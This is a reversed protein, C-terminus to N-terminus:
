YGEIGQTHIPERVYESKHRIVGSPLCKSIGFYYSHEDTMLALRDFDINAALTDHVKRQSLKGMHMTRVRGGREVMGFVPEKKDGAAKTRQSMTSAANPRASKAGPPKGGIYTEDAEVEGKLRSFGKSKM